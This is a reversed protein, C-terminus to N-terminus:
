KLIVYYYYIWCGVGERQKPFLYIFSSYNFESDKLQNVANDVTENIKLLLLLAWHGHVM